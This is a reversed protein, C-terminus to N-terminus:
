IEKLGADKHFPLYLVVPLAIAIMLIYRYSYAIPCALMVVAWCVAMPVFVILQRRKEKQALVSTFSYWMIWVITGSPIFKIMSLLENNISKGTLECFLDRNVYGDNLIDQIGVFYDYYYGIYVGPQWFGLTLMMYAKVYTKFNPFLLQVWVVLFDKVHDNLYEQDVVRKLDDSLSPVYKNKWDEESIVSYLVEKQSDTLEKGEGIVAAIQQIPVSMSENLSDKQVGFADYVPGQIILTVALVAAGPILLRLVQKRFAILVIILVALFIHLGNNKWFCMFLGLLGFKICFGVTVKEKKTLDWLLLTLLVVAASFLTDKWLALGYSAFFGSIAYMIVTGWQILAHAGKVRLKYAVYACVGSFLVTQTVAYLFVGVNIDDSILKGLWLFFRLVMIYLLVWHNHMVAGPSLSYRLTMAGDGVVGGPYFSLTYPLWCILIILWSIFFFLPNKLVRKESLNNLKVKSILVSLKSFVPFLLASLTIVTLIAKKGIVIYNESMNGRIYDFHVQKGMVFAVSFLLSYILFVWSEKFSKEIIMQRYLYYVLASFVVIFVPQYCGLFPLTWVTFAVVGALLAIKWSLEKLTKKM